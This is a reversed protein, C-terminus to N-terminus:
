FILFSFFKSGPKLKPPLPGGMIRSTMAPSARLSHSSKLPLLPHAALTEHTHSHEGLLFGTNQKNLLWLVSVHAMKSTVTQFNHTFSYSFASSEWSPLLCWQPLCFLSLNTCVYHQSFPLTWHSMHLDAPNNISYRQGLVKIKPSSPPPMSQENMLCSAAQYWPKSPM